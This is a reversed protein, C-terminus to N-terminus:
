PEESGTRDTTAAPRAGARLPAPVAAPGAAAPRAPLDAVQQGPQAPGRLVVDAVAVPDQGVDARRPRAPAGDVPTAGPAAQGRQQPAVPFVPGIADQMLRGPTSTLVVAVATTVVVGAVALGVDQRQM